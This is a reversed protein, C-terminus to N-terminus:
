IREVIVDTKGKNRGERLLRRLSTVTVGALRAAETGTVLKIRGDPFAVKFDGNPKDEVAPWNILSDGYRFQLGNFLLLGDSDAMKKVTYRSINFAKAARTCSVFIQIAGTNTDRVGVVKNDDRLGLLYAHEMNASRTCWELNDLQDNGPVGDIHNVDLNEIDFRYRKFAMCLIRHRLRNGTCNDDGTMRFTYYGTVAKSPQIITGSSKRLLVGDKSIVYDSYYPIIYFGPYDIAEIPGTLGLLYNEPLPLGNELVEINTWYIPPLKIGQFTVLTLIRVNPVDLSLKENFDVLTIPQSEFFLDGSRTIEFGQFYPIPLIQNTIDMKFM